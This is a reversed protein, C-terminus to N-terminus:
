CAWGAFARFAPSATDATVACAPEGLVLNVLEFATIAAFENPFTQL